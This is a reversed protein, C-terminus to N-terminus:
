LELPTAEQQVDEFKDPAICAAWVGLVLAQLTQIRCRPRDCASLAGDGYRISTWM